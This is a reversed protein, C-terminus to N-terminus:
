GTGLPCRALVRYVPGRPSLESSYVLVEGVEVTGGSWGAHRGVVGTLDVTRGPKFRALTIHPHFREDGPYGSRACARAVGKQLEMLRPLEEGAIGAWLVSPRRANPFAGLGRVELRFPLPTRMAEQIAETLRAVDAEAVDGLFALTLHMSKPDVWRAGPMETRMSAILRELAARVEDPMAIAVFTRIM